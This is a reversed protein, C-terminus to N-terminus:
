EGLISELIDHVGEVGTDCGRVGDDDFVMVHMKPEPSMLRAIIKDKATIEKKLIDCYKRLRMVEDVYGDLQLQVDEDSDM